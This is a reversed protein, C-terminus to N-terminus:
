FNHYFVIYTNVTPAFGNVIHIGGDNFLYAQLNSKNVDIVKLLETKIESIQTELEKIKELEVSDKKIQMNLLNLSLEYEGLKNFLEQQQSGPDYGPKNRIGKAVYHGGGMGGYHEAQAIVRYKIPGNTSPFELEEPFYRNEKKTYKKFIVVIIESLRKLNYIQVIKPKENDVNKAGCKECKYDKPVYANNMIYEQIAKQSNLSKGTIPDQESLDIMLEPPEIYNDSGPTSINKCAFCKIKCSYRVNFLNEVKNGISDLLLTLGEQLDEQQGHHLSYMSKRRASILANLLNQTSSKNSKGLTLNERFITLYAQVIENGAYKEANALLYENFSTCSMLCQTLSNLYCLVGPNELGFTSPLFSSNFKKLM